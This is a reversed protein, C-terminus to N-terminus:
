SKQSLVGGKAAYGPYAGRLNSGVSYCLEMTCGADCLAAGFADVLKDAGFGLLKGATAACGFTGFVSSLIWDFQWDIAFAMRCAVDIGLAVATILKEGDIKGVAEATAFGAPVICASPHVM